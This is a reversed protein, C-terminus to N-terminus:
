FMEYVQHFYSRYLWAILLLDFECESIKMFTKNLLLFCFMFYINTNLSVCDNIEPKRIQIADGKSNTLANDLAPIYSLANSNKSFVNIDVEALGKM